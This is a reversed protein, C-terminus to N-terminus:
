LAFSAREEAGLPRGAYDRLLRMDCAYRAAIAERQAPAIEAVSFTGRSENRRVLRWPLRVGREALALALQRRLEAHDIVFDVGLGGGPALLREAQPRLQWSDRASWTELFEPFSLDGTYIERNVAFSKARHANYLSVLFSCPERMVAFIRFEERPVFGYIWPFRQEIGAFSLHKDFRAEEVAIECYPRLVHEITSSATKLTAVFVFRHRLSILL